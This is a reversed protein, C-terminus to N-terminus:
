SNLPERVGYISKLYDLVKRLRQDVLSYVMNKEERRCRIVGALRLVKLQQSINSVKETGLIEAIETVCFEGRSLICVIRFRQKNSMLQFLDIVQGCMEESKSFEHRLEKGLSNLM